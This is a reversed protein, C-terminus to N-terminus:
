IASYADLPLNTCCLWETAITQIQQMATSELNKRIYAQYSLIAIAAIIAVIVVVIMMEILTFGKSNLDPIKIM